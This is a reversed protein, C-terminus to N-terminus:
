VNIRSYECSNPKTANAEHEAFLPSDFLEKVSIGFGDAIRQINNLSINRKGIEVEAYYSRAMEISFAFADQSMGRKARLEKLRLGFKIRVSEQSHM